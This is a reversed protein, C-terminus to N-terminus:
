LQKTNQKHICTGNVTAQLQGSAKSWRYHKIVTENGDEMTTILSMDDQETLFSM